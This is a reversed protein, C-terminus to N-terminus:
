YRCWKSTLTSNQGIIIFHNHWNDQGILQQFCVGIPKRGIGTSTITGIYLEAPQGDTCKYGSIGSIKLTFTGFEFYPLVM